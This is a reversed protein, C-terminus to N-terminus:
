LSLVDCLTLDATKRNRVIEREIWVCICYYAYFYLKDDFRDKTGTPRDPSFITGSVRSIASRDYQM